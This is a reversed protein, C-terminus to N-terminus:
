RVTPDLDTNGDLRLQRARDIFESKDIGRFAACRM